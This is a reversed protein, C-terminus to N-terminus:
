ADSDSRLDIGTEEEILKVIKLHPEQAGYKGVAEEYTSNVTSALTMPVNLHKGPEGILRMDKAALGLAFGPDYSGDLIKPIYSDVVYSQACSAGLVEYLTQLDLQAKAGLMLTEGIGQTVLYNLHLQCLKSVYGAGFSGMRVAKATFSALIEAFADLCGQEIGPLMTLTGASAGEAGGTVPAYIMTLSARAQGALEQWSKLDNTSTEFWTAGDPLNAFLGEGGLAVQCVEKSSPLSTIVVDSNNALDAISDAAVAGLGVLNHVAHENLDYVAFHIEHQLCYSLLNSAMGSGMNGLGIFGIKNLETRM